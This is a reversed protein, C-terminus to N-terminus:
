SRTRIEDVLGREIERLQTDVSADLAGRAIEFTVGGRPLSPDPVVEVGASRGSQELLSKLLKELDPHVRVRYIEQNRLKELAAGVLASLASSDVTIERHLVRRAIEIALRVTDAEARRITENRQSAIDSIAAALSSAVERVEAELSRRAATDGAHFGQEWADKKGRDLLATLEEIRSRLEQVEAPSADPGADNQNTRLALPPVWVPLGASVSETGSGDKAGCSTGDRALIRCLM